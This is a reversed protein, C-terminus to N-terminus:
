YLTVYLGLQAEWDGDAGELCDVHCVMLLQLAGPGALDQHVALASLMVLGLELAEEVEFSLVALALERGSQALPPETTSVWDVSQVM